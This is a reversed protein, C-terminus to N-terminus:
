FVSQYFRMLTGGPPINVISYRGDPGAMVTGLPYPSAATSGAAATDDIITIATSNTFTAARLDMAAVALLFVILCLVLSTLSLRPATM